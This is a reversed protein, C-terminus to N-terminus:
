ICFGDFMTPHDLEEGLAADLDVEEGLQVEYEEYDDFFPKSHQMAEEEFDDLDDDHGEKLM